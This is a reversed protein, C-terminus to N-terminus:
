NLYSCTFVRVGANIEYPSTEGNRAKSNVYQCRKVRKASLRNILVVSAVRRVLPDM